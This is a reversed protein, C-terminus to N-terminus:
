ASVQAQRKEWEALEAETRPIGIRDLADSLRAAILTLGCGCPCLPHEKM